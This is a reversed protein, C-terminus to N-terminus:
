LTLDTPGDAEELVHRVYLRKADRQHMSKLIVFLGLLCIQNNRHDFLKTFTLLLVGSGRVGPKNSKKGGFNIICM